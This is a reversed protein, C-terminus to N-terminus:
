FIMNIYIFMVCNRNLILFYNIFCERITFSWTSDQIGIIPEQFNRSKAFGDDILVYYRGGPKNFTSDIVTVNITTGSEDDDSHSIFEDYGNSNLSTIQRIIGHGSGDDQFITVNRNPSLDVKDYYKITLFKTVSPDIISGVEPIATDIHLNGFGHDTFIHLFKYLNFM